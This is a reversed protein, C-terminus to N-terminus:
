ESDSKIRCGYIEIVHFIVSKDFRIIFRKNNRESRVITNTNITDIKNM